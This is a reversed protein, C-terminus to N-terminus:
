FIIPAVGYKFKQEKIAQKKNKAKNMLCVM